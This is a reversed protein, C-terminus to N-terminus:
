SLVFTIREIRQIRPTVLHLKAFRISSKCLDRLSMRMVSVALAINTRSAHRLPILFPFSLFICLHKTLLKESGRWFTTEVSCCLVLFDCLPACFPSVSISADAQVMCLRGQLNTSRTEKKIKTVTSCLEPNTCGGTGAQGHVWPLLPLGKIVPGIGLFLLYIRKGCDCYTGEHGTLCVPNCIVKEPSAIGCNLYSQQQTHSLAKFVHVQHTHKAVIRM